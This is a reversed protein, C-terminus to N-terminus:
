NPSAPIRKIKKIKKEEEISEDTKPSERFASLLPFIPLQTPQLNFILFPFLYRNAVLTRGQTDKNIKEAIGRLALSGTRLDVGLDIAQTPTRARTHSPKTEASSLRQNRIYYTLPSHNSHTSPSSHRHYQPLFCYSATVSAALWIDRETETTTTTTPPTTRRTLLLLLLRLTSDWVKM